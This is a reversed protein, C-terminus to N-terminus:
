DIHKTLAQRCLIRLPIADGKRPKYTDTYTAFEGAIVAMLYTSFRATREFKRRIRGDPQRTNEVERGNSVVTFAAPATVTVDYSAKLDPQDFCPFLQHANFPEFDSFVYERGDEPDIFQHFGSGTHSYANEYEVTVSNKRALLAEPLAIRHKNWDPKEVATGNVTLGLITKGTFDIWLGSTPGAIEFEATLKGRYTESKAKLDLHLTYTPKSIRRARDRSEAETLNDKITHTHTATEATVTEEEPFPVSIARRSNGPCSPRSRRAADLTAM